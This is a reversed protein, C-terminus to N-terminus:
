DNFNEGYIIYQSDVMLEECIANLFAVSISKHQAKELKRIQDTGCGLKRVLEARSMEGRASRLRDAMEPTWVYRDINDQM